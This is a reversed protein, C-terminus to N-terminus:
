STQSTRRHEQTELVKARLYRLGLSACVEANQGINMAELAADNEQQEFSTDSGGRMIREAHRMAVREAAAELAVGPSEAAAELSPLAAAREADIQRALDAVASQYVSLLPDQFTRPGEQM